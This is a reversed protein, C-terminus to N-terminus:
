VGIGPPGHLHYILLVYVKGNMSLIMQGGGERLYPTATLPGSHAQYFSKEM